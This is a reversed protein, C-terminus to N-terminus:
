VTRRKESLLKKVHEMSAHDPPIPPLDDSGPPYEEKTLRYELKAKLAEANEIHSRAMRGKRTEPPPEEALMGMARKLDADIHWLMDYFDWLPLPTKFAEFFTKKLARILNQAGEFTKWEEDKGTWKDLLEILRELEKIMDDLLPEVNIPWSYRAILRRMERIARKLKDILAKVDKRSPPDDTKFAVLMAGLDSTLRDFSGFVDYITAFPVAIGDDDTVGPLAGIVKHKEAIAEACEDIADQFKATKAREIAKGLAENMKKLHKSLARRIAPSFDSM